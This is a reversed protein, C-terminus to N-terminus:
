SSSIKFLPARVARVARNPHSTEAYRIRADAIRAGRMTSGQNM